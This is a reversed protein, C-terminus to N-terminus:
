KIKAMAKDIRELAETLDSENHMITFGNHHPFPIAGGCFFYVGEELAAKCFKPYMEPNFHKITDALHYDLSPDEYGWYIGFQAGMSRLHGPIHHKKLLNNFGDRFLVERKEVEDYFDPELAMKLCERAAIVSLLNGSSTGSCTVPGTPNFMDMIEAKGGVVALSFGNAIAKAFTSLDPTVEYYTQASGPRFRLGTIVEDFILLIGYEDCLKRVAHMYEKTSPACGTDYSVPEMIIAAIEGKYKEFVHKVADINNFDILKVNNEAGKPFGPTEPVVKRAEGYEDLDTCYGGNFWINEHMGHFHGDIKIIINKGTYARAVRIAANTAETGSNTLRIKEVSPILQHMLDAMEVTYESDFNMYFGKDIGELIADKIRPNNWGFLLGGSGCHFDIYENGSVDTVRCGDALDIYLPSGIVKNVRGGACAGAVLHKKAREFLERNKDFNM